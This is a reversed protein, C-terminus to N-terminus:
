EADSMFDAEAEEYTHYEAELAEYIGYEAPDFKMIFSKPEANKVNKLIQVLEEFMPRQEPDVDWCRTMIHYIDDSCHKPQQLRFGGKVIELVQKWQYGQYPLAGLTAIEWLFVGFSWVDSKESYTHNLLCELAMWRVLVTGKRSRSRRNGEIRSHGFDYIKAVFDDSILINRATLNVLIVKISALYQMGQAVDIAVQLMQDEISASYVTVLPSVYPSENRLSRLIKLLDGGKAIEMVIYLADNHCCHGIFTIINPHTGLKKMVELDRNINCIKARASFDKIVKIAVQLREKGKPSVFGRWVETFRGTGLIDNSLCIDSLTLEWEDLADYLRYSEEKSAKEYNEDLNKLLGRIKNVCLFSYRIVMTTLFLIFVCGLVTVLSAVAVVADDSLTWGGKIGGSDNIQEVPLCVKNSSSASVITVDM